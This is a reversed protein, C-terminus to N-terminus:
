LPKFPNYIINSPRAAFIIKSQFLYYLSILIISVLIAATITNPLLAFLSSDEEDKDKNKYVSMKRKIDLEIQRIALSKVILSNFCKGVLALMATDDSSKTKKTLIGNLTFKHNNSYRQAQSQKILISQYSLGLSRSVSMGIKPNVSSNNSDTANLQVICLAIRDHGKITFLSQILEMLKEEDCFSYVIIYCSSDNILQLNEELSLKFATNIVHLHTLQVRYNTLYVQEYVVACSDRLVLSNHNLDQAEALLKKVINCDRKQDLYLNILLGAALANQASSFSIILVNM